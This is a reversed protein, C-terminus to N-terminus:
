KGATVADFLIATSALPLEVKNGVRLVM